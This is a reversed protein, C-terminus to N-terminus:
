PRSRQSIRETTEPWLEAVPMRQMGTPYSGSPHREIWAKSLVTFYEFNEWANQDHLARVNAVVGSLSEWSAVALGCWMDCAIDRDIIGRKVFTGLNEFFNAVSRVSAYGEPIRPQAFSRRAESDKLGEPLDFAIFRLAAQFQDSEITERAENLALIQNSGRMHRLQMLAAIASAAIVVFTGLTGIATLWEASVTTRM